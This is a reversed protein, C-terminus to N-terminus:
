ARTSSYWSTTHRTSLLAFVYWSFSQQLSNQFFCSYEEWTLTDITKTTKVDYLEFLFMLLSFGASIGTYFDKDWRRVISGSCSDFTVPCFWIKWVWFQVHISERQIKLFDSMQLFATTCLFTVWLRLRITLRPGWKKLFPSLQDDLITASNAKPKGDAWERDVRGLKKIRSDLDM